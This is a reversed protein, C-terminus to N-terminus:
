ANEHTLQEGEKPQVAAGLFGNFTQIAIRLSELKERIDEIADLAFNKGRRSQLRERRVQVCAFFGSRACECLKRANDVPDIGAVIEQRPESLQRQEVGNLNSEEGFAPALFGPRADSPPGFNRSFHFGKERERAIGVLMRVVRKRFQEVARGSSKFALLKPM